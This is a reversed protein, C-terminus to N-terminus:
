HPGGPPRTAGVGVVAGSADLIVAGVPPNPSTSGRAAESADIALRM